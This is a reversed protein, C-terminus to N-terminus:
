NFLSDLNLMRDAHELREENTPHKYELNKPNHYKIKKSNTKEIYTTYGFKTKKTVKREGPVLFDWEDMWNRLTRVSIGLAKCTKTRNYELKEFVELTHKKTLEKLTLIKEEHDMYKNNILM